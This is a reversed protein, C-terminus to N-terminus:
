DLASNKAGSAGKRQLKEMSLPVTEAFKCWLTSELFSGGELRRHSGRLLLVMFDLVAIIRAHGM